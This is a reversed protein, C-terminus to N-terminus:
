VTNHLKGGSSLSADKRRHLQLRSLCNGHLLVEETPVPICKFRYIVFVVYEIPEAAVREDNIRQAHDMLRVETTRKTVDM